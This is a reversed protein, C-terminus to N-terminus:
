KLTWKCRANALTRAESETTPGVGELDFSADKTEGVMCDCKQKICKMSRPKNDSCKSWTYSAEVGFHELFGLGATLRYGTDTDDENRSTFGASPIESVNWDAFESLQYSLGAYWALNWDSPWFSTSAAKSCEECDHASAPLSFGALLAAAGLVAACTNMRIQM